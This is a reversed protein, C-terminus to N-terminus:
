IIGLGILTTGRIGYNYLKKLLIQHDVTDFANQLDIYIGVVYNGEELNSYLKDVLEMVALSTSHNPRFGFQYEYLM